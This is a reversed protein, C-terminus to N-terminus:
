SKVIKSKNFLMKHRRFTLVVLSFSLCLFIIDRILTLTDMSGEASTSFCGCGVNLGRSLNFTIISLFLLMLVATLLSVGNMWYNFLLCVGLILEMWPLVIATLNILFVPLIQQNFVVQAFPQPHVIKDISAYIFVFALVLRLLHYFFNEKFNM